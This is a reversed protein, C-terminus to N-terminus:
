QCAGYEITLVPATAPDNSGFFYVYRYNPTNERTGITINSTNFESAWDHANVDIAFDAATAGSPFSTYGGSVVRDVTLNQNTASARTWGDLDSQVIEMVPNSYPSGFQAEHTLTLTMSFVQNVKGSLEAPVDFRAWGIIDTGDSGTYARFRNDQITGGSQRVSVSDAATLTVTDFSCSLGNCVTATSDIEGADLVGDGNDDVGTNIRQGGGPCTVGEPEPVIDILSTLGDTGNTGDTGDQGDQGPDGQPGQQGDAGDCVYSVQDVEMASLVGDGDDDIGVEIKQGGDACNPGALEETTNVLSTAGDQGDQGVAGDAGNCVFATSDIEEASLAGDGDDDIGSDVRQGGAACTNGAPEETVLLLSTAGDEGNEGMTGDQGAPGESGAPGACVPTQGDVEDDDLVGNANDDLGHELQTGGAPCVDGPEITTTRVLSSRGDAGATGDVGDAGDNGSCGVLLAIMSVSFLIRHNIPSM